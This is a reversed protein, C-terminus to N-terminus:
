PFSLYMTVADVLDSKAIIYEPKANVPIRYTLWGTRSMGPSINSSGGLQPDISLSEPKHAGASTKLTIQNSFLLFQKESQNDVIFKLHVLQANQSANPAERKEVCNLSVGDKLQVLAVPKAPAAKITSTTSNASDANSGSDSKCSYLLASISLVILLIRM